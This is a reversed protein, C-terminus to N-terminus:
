VTYPNWGNIDDGKLWMGFNVRQQPNAASTKIEATTGNSGILEVGLGRRLPYNEGQYNFDVISGDFYGSFTDLVGVLANQLDNINITSSNILNTNAVGNVTIVRNKITITNIQNDIIPTQNLVINQGFVGLNDNINFNYTGNGSNNFRRVYYSTNSSNGSIGKSFLHQTSGDFTNPIFSIELDIDDTTTVTIDENVVVYESNGSDFELAFGSKQFVDGLIYNIPDAASSNVQAITGNSGVIQANSNIDVPNFTEGQLNFSKFTYNSRDNNGRSGIFLQDNDIFNVSLNGFTFKVVGDFLIEDNKIEILTTSTTINTFTSNSVVNGSEDRIVFAWGTPSFRSFLLSYNLFEIGWRILCEGDTNFVTDSISIDFSLDLQNTNTIGQIKGSLDINDANDSDFDLQHGNSRYIPENNPHTTVLDYEGNVNLRKEDKLNIDAM